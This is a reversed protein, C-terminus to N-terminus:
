RRRINILFELLGALDCTTPSRFEGSCLSRVPSYRKEHEPRSRTIPLLGLLNGMTRRAKVGERPGIEGVLSLDYVKYLCESGEAAAHKGEEYISTYLSGEIGRNIPVICAVTHRM